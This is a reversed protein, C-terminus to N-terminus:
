EMERPIHKTEQGCYGYVVPNRRNWILQLVTSVRIQTITTTSTKAGTAVFGSPGDPSCAPTLGAWHSVQDPFGEGRWTRGELDRPGCYRVETVAVSTPVRPLCCGIITIWITTENCGLKITCINQTLYKISDCQSFKFPGIRSNSSPM